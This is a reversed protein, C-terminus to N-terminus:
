DVTGLLGYHVALSYLVSAEYDLRERLVSVIVASAEGFAHWDRAIAEDTWRYLFAAWQDAQETVQTMAAVAAEGHRDCLAAQVTATLAHREDAQHARIADTLDCLVKMAADVRAPGDRLDLLADFLADIRAHDRMLLQYSM